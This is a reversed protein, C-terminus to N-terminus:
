HALRFLRYAVAFLWSILLIYGIGTSVALIGNPALGTGLDGALLLISAVMGIWGLWKSFPGGRLMALCIALGAGMVSSRGANQTLLFLLIGLPPQVLAILALFRHSRHLALFLGAQAIAFLALLALDLINLQYLQSVQVGNSGALLRFIMILWNDGKALGLIGALLLLAAGLACASAVLYMWKRYMAKASVGMHETDPIIMPTTM